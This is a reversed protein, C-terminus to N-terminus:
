KKLRDLARTAVDRSRGPPASELYISYQEIARDTFGKRELAVALNGRANLRSPDREVAAELYVIASDLDDSRLFSLGLDSLLLASRPLNALGQRLLAAADGPRDMRLLLSAEAHYAPEAFPDISRAKQFLPLGRDPEGSAEHALGMGVYANVLTSDLEIAKGFNELAAGHDGKALYANALNSYVGAPSPNGRLALNYEEIAEVPMRYASPLALVVRRLANLMEELSGHVALEKELISEYQDRIFSIVPGYSTELEEKTANDPINSAALAINVM